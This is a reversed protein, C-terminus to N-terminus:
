DIRSVDIALVTGTNADGDTGTIFSEGCNFHIRTDLVKMGSGDIWRLWLGIKRGDLYFPRVALTNGEVLYIMQKKMLPVVEQQSSVLRFKKFHLKQFQQQIDRLSDDVSPRTDGFAAESVEDLNGTARITRVRVRISDASGANGLAPEDAISNNCPLAFPLVLTVLLALIGRQM